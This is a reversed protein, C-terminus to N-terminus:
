WGALEAVGDRVTIAWGKPSVGKWTHEERSNWGDASVAPLTRWIVAYKNELTSNIERVLCTEVHTSGEVRIGVGLCNMGQM